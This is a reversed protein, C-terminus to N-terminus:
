ADVAAVSDELDVITSLAAELRVDAIGAADRSGIPHESDFLVEIHLGNNCFVMGRDTRGVFQQPDAPAVEDPGSIEAWGPGALPVAVELFARAAAIVAAPPAHPLADTGYYADYLSGWRANAANLLFRANLAPVVLQPGALTAIEADVNTTGITFAEPEPVLYGIDELFARYAAADHPQDRRDAHWRDIRAQLENRKDLLELNRLAFHSSLDAFGQWFAAADRGLPRLVDQELFEALAADVALGSREVRESV